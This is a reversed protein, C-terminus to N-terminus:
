AGSAILGIGALCAAVVGLDDLREVRGVRVPSLGGPEPQRLHTFGPGNPLLSRIERVLRTNRRM